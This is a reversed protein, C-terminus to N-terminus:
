SYPSIGRAMLVAALPMLALLLLELAILRRLREIDQGSLVRTEGARLARNWRLFQLTPVVSILGIAIFLALKVYLLPNGLYFGAGKGFAALRVVGTALAALAAVLYGIDIRVLLRVHGPQLHENCLFFEAALLGALTLMSLFHLYAFLSEV